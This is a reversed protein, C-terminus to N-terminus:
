LSEADKLYKVVQYILQHADAENELVMQYISVVEGEDELLEAVKVMAVMFDTTKAGLNLAFFGEITNKIITFQDDDDNSIDAILTM